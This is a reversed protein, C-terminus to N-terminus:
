ASIILHLTRYFDAYDYVNATVTKNIPIHQISDNNWVIHFYLKLFLTFLDRKLIEYLAFCTARSKIIIISFVGVLVTLALSCVCTPCHVCVTPIAKHDDNLSTWSRLVWFGKNQRQPVHLNQKKMWRKSIHCQTNNETGQM